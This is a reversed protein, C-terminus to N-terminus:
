GLAGSGPEPSPKIVLNPLFYHFFSLSLSIGHSIICVLVCYHECLCVRVCRMLLLLLLIEVKKM